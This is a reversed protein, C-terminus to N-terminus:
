QSTKCEIIESDIVSCKINKFIITTYNGYYADLKRTAAMTYDIVLKNRDKNEMYDKMINQLNLSIKKNKCDDIYSILVEEHSTTFTLPIILPDYINKTTKIIGSIKDSGCKQNINVNAHFGSGRYYKPEYDDDDFWEFVFYKYDYAKIAFSYEINFEHNKNMEFSGISAIRNINNEVDNIPLYFYEGNYNNMDPLIITINNKQDIVYVSLNFQSEDKFDDIDIDAMYDGNETREMKIINQIPTNNAFCFLYAYKVENVGGQYYVKPLLKMRVTMNRGDYDFLIDSIDISSYVASLATITDLITTCIILIFLMKARHKLSCATKLM